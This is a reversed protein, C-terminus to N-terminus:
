APNRIQGDLSFASTESANMRSSPRQYKPSKMFTLVPNILSWHSEGNRQELRRVLWVRSQAVSSPCLHRGEGNFSSHKWSFYSAFCKEKGCRPSCRRLCLLPISMEESPSCLMEWLSAQNHQNNIVEIKMLLDLRCPVPLDRCHFHNLQFKDLHTLYARRICTFIEWNVVSSRTSRGAM